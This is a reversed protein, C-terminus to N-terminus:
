ITTTTLTYGVSGDSYITLVELGNLGYLVICHNYINIYKNYIGDYNDEALGDIVLADINM